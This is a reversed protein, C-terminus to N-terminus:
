WIRKGWNSGQTFRINTALKNQIQHIERELQQVWENKSRLAASQPHLKFDTDTLINQIDLAFNRKSEAWAKVLLRSLIDEVQLRISSNMSSSHTLQLDSTFGGASYSEFSGMKGEEIPKGFDIINNEADYNGEIVEGDIRYELISDDIPIFSLEFQQKIGDGSFTELKGEPDVKTSALEQAIKQPNTLLAFSDRLFPYMLKSFQITNTMYAITIKPEDFLAIAKEYIDSNKIAM